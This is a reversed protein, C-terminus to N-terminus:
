PLRKKLRTIPTREQERPDSPKEGKRPIRIEKFFEDLIDRVIKQITVHSYYIGHAKLAQETARFSNYELYCRVILQQNTERSAIFKRFKEDLQRRELEVEISVKKDAVNSLEEPTTDSIILTKRRYSDYFKNQAIKRVWAFFKGYPHSYDPEFLSFKRWVKEAVRSYLDEADAPNYSITNCILNLRRIFVSNELLADIKLEDAKVKKLLARFNADEGSESQNKEVM